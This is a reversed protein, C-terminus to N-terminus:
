LFVEFFYAKMSDYIKKLLKFVRTKMFNFVEIRCSGSNIEFHKVVSVLVYIRHNRAFCEDDRDEFGPMRVVHAAFIGSAALMAVRGHKLEAERLRRFWREDETIEVSGLVRFLVIDISSEPEPILHYPNYLERSFM